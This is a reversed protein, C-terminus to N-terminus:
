GDEQGVGAVRIVDGAHVSIRRPGEVELIMAGDAELGRFRGRVPGGATSVELWADRHACNRLWRDLLPGSGQRLLADYGRELRALLERAFSVREVPRGLELSVSTAPYVMGEPFMEATMNLNVGIGLVLYHIAEQEAQMEALVGATKKGGLLVDNPWKIRAELSYLHEIAACVEVAGLLTLLSAQTPSLGPRLLVSLYLNRGAPSEWRRGKRGKGASQADAVVVTGEVAGQEGLRMLDDNTSGTREKYVLNRGIRPTPGDTEMELLRLSDPTEALRYGLAPVGTIRFGRRRLSQVQKWVAARSVGLERCIEQGSVFGGSTKLLRFIRESPPRTGSM